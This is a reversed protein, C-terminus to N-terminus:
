LRIAYGHRSETFREAEPALDRDFTAHGLEDDEYPGCGIDILPRPGPGSPFGRM